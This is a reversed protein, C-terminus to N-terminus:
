GENSKQLCDLAEKYKKNNLLDVIALCSSKRVCKCKNNIIEEDIFVWDCLLYKWNCITLDWNYEQKNKM